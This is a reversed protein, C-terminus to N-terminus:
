LCNTPSFRKNRGNDVLFILVSKGIHRDLEGLKTGTPGSLAAGAQIWMILIKRFPQPQWHRHESCKRFTIPQTVLLGGTSMASWVLEGWLAQQSTHTLPTNRVAQSAMENRFASPFLMLHKTIKSWLSALHFLKFEKQLLVSCNVVPRWFSGGAM